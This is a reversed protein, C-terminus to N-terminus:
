LLDVKGIMDQFNDLISKMTADSVNDSAWGFVPQHIKIAVDGLM